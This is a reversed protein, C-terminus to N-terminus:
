SLQPAFTLLQAEAGSGDDSKILPDLAARLQDAAPEGQVPHAKYRVPASGLNVTQKEQFYAPMSGAGRKWAMLGLQEAEPLEPAQDILTQLSALDVSPSGKATYLEAKAVPTLVSPPLAAIGARASSWQGADIADFVGRWDKPVYVSRPPPAAQTVVIPQQSQPQPQDSAPQASSTSSVQ